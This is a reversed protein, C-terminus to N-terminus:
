KGKGLRGRGAKAKVGGRGAFSEQGLIPLISWDVLPSARMLHVDYFKMVLVPACDADPGIDHADGIGLGDVLNISTLRVKGLYAPVPKCTKRCGM